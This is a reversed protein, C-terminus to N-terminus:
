TNVGTLDINFRRKVYEAAQEITQFYKGNGGFRVCYRSYDQELTQLTVPLERRAWPLNLTGMGIQKEAAIIM